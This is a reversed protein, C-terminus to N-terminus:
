AEAARAGLEARRRLVARARGARITVCLEQLLEAHAAAKDGGERAAVARAISKLVAGAAPDWAGTTEAVMPVFRIRQTACERATGFHAAKTGAHASAASRSGLAGRALLHDTRQPATIALDLASPVGALAPVFVDAPRRRGLHSDGPRQPLLLGPRELEPSLGAREAWRFVVNRAANHRLVREGGASCMSAHHAFRDVVGDCLPCWQDAIADPICLRSRLESIFVCPEM